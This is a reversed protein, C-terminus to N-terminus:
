QGAKGQRTPKLARSMAQAMAMESQKHKQFEKPFYNTLAIMLRTFDSPGENGEFNKKNGAPLGANKLARNIWRVMAAWREAKSDAQQSRSKTSAGATEIAKDLADLLHFLYWISEQDERPPIYYEAEQVIKQYEFQIAEAAAEIAHNEGRSKRIPELAALLAAMGSKIPATLKAEDAALGRRSERGVPELYLLNIANVISGRMVDSRGDRTELKHGYREELTTWDITDVSIGTSVNGVFGVLRPGEPM